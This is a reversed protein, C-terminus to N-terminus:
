LPCHTLGDSPGCIHCTISKHMARYLPEAIFCAIMKNKILKYFQVNVRTIGNM